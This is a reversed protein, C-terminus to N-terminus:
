GGTPIQREIAEKAVVKWCPYMCCICIGNEDLCESSCNKIEEEIESLAKKYRAKDM